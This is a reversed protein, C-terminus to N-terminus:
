NYGPNQLLNPNLDIESQPIPFQWRFDGAALTLAEAVTGTGDAYHGETASRNVSLGLRKLTYFRDMEFAFELRRELLIANLLATGTEGGSVFSSYRKSRVADLSTLGGGSIRFEAEAKNLYAEEIRLVKIDVVNRVGSGRGDYKSINNYTSGAFPGVKFYASKRIDTSTFKNFFEFTPVYESRTQAGAAQSYAVGATTGDIQDIRLKFVVGASNSDEWLGVTPSTYFESRTAITGSFAAIADNASSVTKPYDGLYLYTRSLLLHVAALNARGAPNSTNIKTKAMLLDDLVLNYCEQVTKRSPRASADATTVYAVGLSSLADSSQTPIKAYNRLLELHNIARIFLAEGEINNRRAGADLKNINNLALNAFYISRYASNYFDFHSSGPTSTFRFGDRNSLRGQQNIILNDTAIESDILLEQGFGEAGLNKIMYSYSGLIVNEFDSPTELVINESVANYPFLKLDEKDCSAFLLSLALSGILIKRM